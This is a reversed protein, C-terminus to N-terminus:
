KNFVVDVPMHPASQAGDVLMLAGVSHALDGAERGPQRHRACELLPHLRGNQDQPRDSRSAVEM